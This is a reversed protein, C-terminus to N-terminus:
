EIYNNLKLIDATKNSVQAKGNTFCINIGNIIVSSYNKYQGTLTVELITDLSEDKSQEMADNATTNEIVTKVTKAM